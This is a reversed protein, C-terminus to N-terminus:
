LNNSSTVQRDVCLKLGELAVKLAIFFPPKIAARIIYGAYSITSENLRTSM